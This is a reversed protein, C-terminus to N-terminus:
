EAEKDPPTEDFIAQESVENVINIQQEKLKRDSSHKHTLVLSDNITKLNNKGVMKSMKVDM